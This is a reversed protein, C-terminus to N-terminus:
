PVVPVGMRNNIANSIQQGTKFQAHTASTHADGDDVQFPGPDGPYRQSHLPVVGDGQDNGVTVKKYILDLALLGAAQRACIAAVAHGGPIVFGLIGGVVGCKILQHYTKDVSNVFARSQDGCNASISAGCFKSDGVLRWETWKNWTKNTVAAHPFAQDGRNTLIDHVPNSPDLQGVVPLSHDLIPELVGV